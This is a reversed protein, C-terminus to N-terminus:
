LSVIMIAPMIGQKAASTVPSTPHQLNTSDILQSESNVAEIHQIASAEKVMLAAVEAEILPVDTM